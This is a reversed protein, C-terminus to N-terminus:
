LWKGKIVLNAADKYGLKGYFHRHMEDNVALLQVMSAGLEKVRRELEAMLRTGLGRGQYRGDVVIEALDYASIDHFQELYGMAFGIPAGDEEMLLCYSDERSWVQHIRRYTTEYTWGDGDHTNYYEIYFPVVRDIDGEEMIRYTIM